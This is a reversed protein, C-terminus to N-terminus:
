SEKWATIKEREHALITGLLEDDRKFFGRIPSEEGGSIVVERIEEPRLGMDLLGQIFWLAMNGPTNTPPPDEMKVEEATLKDLKTYGEPICAMIAAIKDPALGKKQLDKEIMNKSDTITLPTM